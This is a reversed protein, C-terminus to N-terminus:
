DACGESNFARTDALVTAASLRGELEPILSEKTLKKLSDAHFEFTARSNLPTYDDSATLYSLFVVYQKGVKLIGFSNDTVRIRRNNLLIAGGPWTVTINSATQLNLTTKSRIVEDVVMEYDTFVFTGDLTLQSRKNTATAVVVADAGCVLAKIVEPYSSGSVIANPVGIVFATDSTGPLNRLKEGKRHWDYRRSFIQSHLKQKSTLAGEIVPTADETTPTQEKKQASRQGAASFRSLRQITAASVAILMVMLLVKFKMM